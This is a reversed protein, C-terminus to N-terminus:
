WPLSSPSLHGTFVSGDDGPLEVAAGLLPHGPRDLGLEVPAPRATVWFREHQFPYTPLAVRRAGTGAFYADWDLPVGLLHM